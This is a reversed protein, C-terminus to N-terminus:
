QAVGRSRFTWVVRYSGRAQVWGFERLGDGGRRRPSQRLAGRVHLGAGTRGAEGAVAVAVVPDPFVRFSVPAPAGGRLGVLGDGPKLTPLMSDEAVLFRRLPWDQFRHNRSVALPYILAM